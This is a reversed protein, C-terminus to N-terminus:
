GLPSLASIVTASRSCPIRRCESMTARVALSSAVESMERTPPSSNVMMAVSIVDGPCVQLAAATAAAARTNFRLGQRIRHQTRRESWPPLCRHGGLEQLEASYPKLTFKPPFFVTFGISAASGDDPKGNTTLREAGIKHAEIMRTSQMARRVRPPHDPMPELLRSYQIKIKCLYIFQALSGIRAGRPTAQRCNKGTTANREPSTVKRAWQPKKMYQGAVSLRLLDKKKPPQNAIVPPM